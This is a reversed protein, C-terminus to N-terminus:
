PAIVWRPMSEAGNIFIRLPAMQGSVLDSPLRLNLVPKAPSADVINFEGPNLAVGSVKKLKNNGVYVQVAQSPLNAHKFLYGKVEVNGSADPNSVSYPRSSM